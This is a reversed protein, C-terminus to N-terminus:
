AAEVHSKERGPLAIGADRNNLLPLSLCRGHGTILLRDSELRALAEEVAGAAEGPLERLIQARTPGADCLTLLRAELGTLRHSSRVACPRTDVVLLDDPPLRYAELRPREEIPKEWLSTWASVARRLPLAYDFPHRGDGYDFDFFFALRRLDDEPLPYVHRYSPWPRVNVLGSEDPKVWLPSFRKLVISTAGPGPPQLHAYLPLEAALREYEAPDEDPFGYLFNWAVAIGLEGCWRLFQLNQMRSTGKRMCHLIADSLSEIGPQLGVVGGARMARLEDRGLSVRVQFYFPWPAGAEALRPFLTMPYSADMADDVCQVAVFPHAATLSRLEEVVHDPSKSRYHLLGPLDGCFVCQCRAGWWCGRSTELPLAVAPAEGHFAQAAQRFFEDYDPAPLTDLDAVRPVVLASDPDGRRLIGPVSASGEGRLQARLFRPLVEDGEGTCVADIWPFSRLWQAGMDGHCNAGGFIILPPDPMNKLRRAVALCSCAQQGATSFGVVRPRSARIEAACEDAFDAAGARLRRLLPIMTDRLFDTFTRGDPFSVGYFLGDEFRAYDALLHDIYPEPAPAEAGFAAEAFVWDGALSRSAMAHAVAGYGDIGLRAAYDLQFYRVAARFGARALEAKLLSPGLTPERVAAFPMVVLLIDPRGAPTPSHRPNPDFPSM